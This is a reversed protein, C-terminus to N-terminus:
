RVSIKQTLAKPNNKVKILYLGAPLPPHKIELSSDGPALEQQMLVEGTATMLLLYVTSGSDPKCCGKTYNPQNGIAVLTDGVM